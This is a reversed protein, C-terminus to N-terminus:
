AAGVVRVAEIVSGDGSATELAIGWANGVVTTSVKGGNARYITANAAIAGAATVRVTNSLSPLRVAGVSDTAQTREELIGLENDAAAAVALFGGTLKVRLYPAIASNNPFTRVERTVLATM